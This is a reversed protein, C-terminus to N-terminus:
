LTPTCRILKFPAPGTPVAATGPLKRAFRAAQWRLAADLCASHAPWGALRRLLLTLPSRAYDLYAPSPCFHPDPVRTIGAVRLSSQLLLETWQALTRFSQYDNIPGLRTREIDSDIAIELMFFVADPKLCTRIVELARRVENEDLIHDLTTVSLALDVSCADLPIQEYTAAYAFENAHIHPRVYPDYGCVKFGLSLLLRSFDGTGCGFDFATGRGIAERM